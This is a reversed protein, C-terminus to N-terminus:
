PSQLTSEMIANPEVHIAQPPGSEPFITGWSFSGHSSEVEEVQVLLELAAAIKKRVRRCHDPNKDKAWLDFYSIDGHKHGKFELLALLSVISGANPIESNLFAV